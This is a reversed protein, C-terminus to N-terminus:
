DDRAAGAPLFTDIAELMIPLTRKDGGRKLPRWTAALRAQRDGAATIELVLESRPALAGGGVSATIRGREVDQQEVQARMVGLAALCAGFLAHKPVNYTRREVRSHEM